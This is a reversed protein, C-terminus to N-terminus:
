KNLSQQLQQQAEALAQGLRNGPSQWAITHTSVYAPFAFRRGAIELLQVRNRFLTALTYTIQSANSHNCSIIGIAFQGRANRTSNM